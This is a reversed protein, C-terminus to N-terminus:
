IRRSSEATGTGGTSGNLENLFAESQAVWSVYGWIPCVANGLVALLYPPWKGEVTSVIKLLIDSSCVNVEAKWPGALWEHSFEVPANSESLVCFMEIDSFPRDTGKPVSGYVGIALIKDRYVEDLRAAIEHCTQLRESRSSNVPGNMNM